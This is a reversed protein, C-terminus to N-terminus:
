PMRLRYFRSPINESGSDPDSFNAVGNRLTITGLDMWEPNALDTCAQVLVVLDSISTVNFEFLGDEADFGIDGAPIEPDWLVTPREGFTSGWGLADPLYYVTTSDAGLFASSGLNPANGEFYLSLPSTCYYFTLNGISTIGNGIKVNTLSSCGSFVYDDMTTVGNGITIKTLSTSNYFAYIGISTVSDGIVVTTLSNNDSFALPGIATIPQGEITDPVTVDGGAGTYATITVKGDDITYTYNQAALAVPLLILLSLPLIKM